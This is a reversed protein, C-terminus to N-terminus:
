WHESLLFVVISQTKAVRYCVMHMNTQSDYNNKVNGTPTNSTEFGVRITKISM